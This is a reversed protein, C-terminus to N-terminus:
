STIFFNEVASLAEQEDTGTAIITVSMGETFRFAMIGMISKANAHRRGNEIIIESNFQCALQIFEATNTGKMDPITIKKKRM